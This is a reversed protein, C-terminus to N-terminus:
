SCFRKFPIMCPKIPPEDDSSESKSDDPIFDITTWDPNLNYPKFDAPIPKKYIRTNKYTIWAASIASDYDLNFKEDLQLKDYDSAYKREFINIRNVNGSMVMQMMINRDCFHVNVTDMVFNNVRIGNIIEQPLKIIQEDIRTIENDSSSESSTASAPKNNIKRTHRVARKYNQLNLLLTQYGLTITQYYIKSIKDYVRVQPFQTGCLEEYSMLMDSDVDTGYIHFNEFYPIGLFNLYLKENLKPYDKFISMYIDFRREEDFFNKADFNENLIKLWTETQVDFSNLIENIQRHNGLKCLLRILNSAENIDDIHVINGTTVFRLLIKFVSLTGTPMCNIVMFNNNHYEMVLEPIMEDITEFEAFYKKAVDICILVYIPPSNDESIFKVYAYRLDVDMKTIM